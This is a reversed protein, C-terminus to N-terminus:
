KVRIKFSPINYRIQDCEVIYGAPINWHRILRLLTKLHINKYWKIEYDDSSYPLWGGLGAEIWTDLQADYALKERWNSKGDPKDPYVSIIWCPIKKTMYWKIWRINKPSQLVKLKMDKRPKCFPGPYEWAKMEEVTEEDYNHHKLSNQVCELPCNKALWRDLYCPTNWLVYEHTDNIEETGNVIDENYAAIYDLLNTKHGNEFVAPGHERAWAIAERLEKGSVYMKDIAAM